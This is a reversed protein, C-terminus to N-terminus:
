IENAKEKTDSVTARKAAEHDHEQADGRCWGDCNATHEPYCLLEIFEHETASNQLLRQWAKTAEAPDEGFRKFILRALEASQTLTFHKGNTTTIVDPASSM